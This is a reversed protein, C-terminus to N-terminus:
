NRKANRSYGLEMECEGLVSDALPEEALDSEASNRSNAPNQQIGCYKKTGWVNRCSHSSDVPIPSSDVPIVLIWLFPVLIQLFLVLIPRSYVPISLFGTM